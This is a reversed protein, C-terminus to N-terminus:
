LCSWILYAVQQKIREIVFGGGGHVFGGNILGTVTLQMINGDVVSVNATLIDVNNEEFVMLVKAVLGRGTQLYIGFSAMEGSVVVNMNTDHNTYTAGMATRQIENKQAELIRVDGELKKIYDVAESVVATKTVKSILNPLLSQLTSLLENNSLRRERETLIKHEGNRQKKRSSTNSQLPKCHSSPILSKNKMQNFPFQSIHQEPEISEKKM